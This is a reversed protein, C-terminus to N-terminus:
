DDGARLHEGLACALWVPSLALACGFAAAFFLITLPWLMAASILFDQDFQNGYRSVFFTIVAAPIIWAAFVAWGSM